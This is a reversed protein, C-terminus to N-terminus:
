RNGPTPAARWCPPAANRWNKMASRWTFPARRSTSKLTDGEAALGILGGEAAEPQRPRHVPRLHRRLLPRRDAARLSQGPGQIEPLQHPLANRAHRPRWDPGEYRILVVDGAVIQDALIAEVAADQSEFIRVRGTFTLISEDVGATKVICGREAINGYLM